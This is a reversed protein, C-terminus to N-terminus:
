VFIYSHNFKPGTAFSLISKQQTVHVGHWHLEVSALDTYFQLLSDLGFHKNVVSYFIDDISNDHASSKVPVNKGVNSVPM